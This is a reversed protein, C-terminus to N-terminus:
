SGSLLSAAKKQPNITAGSQYGAAVSRTSADLAALWTM